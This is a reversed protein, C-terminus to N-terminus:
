IFKSFVLVYTCFDYFITFHLFFTTTHLRHLFIDSVLSPIGLRIPSHTVLPLEKLEKAVNVM